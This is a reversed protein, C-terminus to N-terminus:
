LHTNQHFLQSFPTKQNPKKKQNKLERAAKKLHGGRRKFYSHKRSMDYGPGFQSMATFSGPVWEHADPRRSGTRSVGREKTRHQPPLKRYKEGGLEAWPRRQGAGAEFTKRKGLWVRVVGVM